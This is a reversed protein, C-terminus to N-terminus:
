DCLSFTWINMVRLTDSTYSDYRVAKIYTPMINDGDLLLILKEDTHM